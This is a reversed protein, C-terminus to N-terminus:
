YNKFKERTYAYLYYVIVSISFLAVHEAVVFCSDNARVSKEENTKRM